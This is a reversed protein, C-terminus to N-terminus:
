IKEKAKTALTIIVDVKYLLNFSINIDRENDVDTPVTYLLLVDVAAAAKATAVEADEFGLDGGGM